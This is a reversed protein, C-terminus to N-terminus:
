TENSLGPTSLKRPQVGSLLLTSVAILFYENRAKMQTTVREPKM